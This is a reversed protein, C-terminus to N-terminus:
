KVEVGWVGSRYVCANVGECLVYEATDEQHVDGKRNSSQERLVGETPIRSYFKDRPFLFPLWM